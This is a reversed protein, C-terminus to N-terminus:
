VDSRSIGYVVGTFEWIVTLVMFVSVYRLKCRVVDPWRLRGASTGICAQVLCAQVFLMEPGAPQGAGARLRGRATAHGAGCQTHCAGLVAITHPHPPLAAASPPSPTTLPNHM